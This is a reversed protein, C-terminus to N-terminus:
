SSPGHPTSSRWIVLQDGVLLNYLTAFANIHYMPALVLIPQPRAIPTWQDAIPTGFVPDYVGPMASLIIKPTGTSGSSCIGHFAPCGDPLDPVERSARGGIWTM